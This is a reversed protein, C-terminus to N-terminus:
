RIRREKRSRLFRPLPVPIDFVTRAPQMDERTPREDPDHPIRPVRSLKDAHDGVYGPPGDAQRARGFRWLAM